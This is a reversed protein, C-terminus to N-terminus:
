IEGRMYIKLFGNYDKEVISELELLLFILLYEKEDTNKLQNTPFLPFIDTNINNIIYSSLQFAYPAQKDAVLM